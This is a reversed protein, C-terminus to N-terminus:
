RISCSGKKKTLLFLIIFCVQDELNSHPDVKPKDYSLTINVKRNVDEVHVFEYQTSEDSVDEELLTTTQTPHKPLTTQIQHTPQTIKKTKAVSKIKKKKQ